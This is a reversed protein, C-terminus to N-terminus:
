RYFRSEQIWHFGRNILVFKNLDVLRLQLRTEHGDMNGDLTLQDPANRAFTFNAKWTKDADDNLVLTKDEVNITAAYRAFSDDIRQFAVRTPSDFIVRRWRGYDTLLPSRLQGDITQQDVEWIGYLPSKPQGGGYKYWSQREGYANMGVLWLGFLIQVTLAIRNARRTSFLQAQAPPATTRNLFFFNILRPLDPALLFLALLIFHFTFLKVPVDYTMNLVFVQIMEALCVLAGLMATRPVILLLGGFVEACGTFIEYAPAAGMSSWLVGMPSFDGFYKVLRALPPFPMQVPIVKFMGYSLMLGALSFRIFLRFWKHLTVYNERRRDLISWIGTAPVSIVLLCFALVWGFMDDQSGSNGEFALTARVHLIHAATWFILPRLPRLTAPNIWGTTFLRAIAATTLCFLGLYVFCFRFAVRSALGWLPVQLEHQVPDTLTETEM